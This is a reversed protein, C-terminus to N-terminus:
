ADERGEKRRRDGADVMEEVVANLGACYLEEWREADLRDYDLGLRDALREAEVQARWKYSDRQM